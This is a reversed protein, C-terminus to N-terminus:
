RMITTSFLVVIKCVFKMRVDLRVPSTTMLYPILPTIRVFEADDDMIPLQFYRAVTVFFSFYDNDEDPSGDLGFAEIHDVVMQIEPFHLTYDMKWYILNEFRVLVFTVM